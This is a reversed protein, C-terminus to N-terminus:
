RTLKTFIIIIYDPQLLKLPTWNSWQIKCLEILTYTQTGSNRFSKSGIMIFSLTHSINNKLLQLFNNPLYFVNGNTRQDFKCVFNQSQLKSLMQTSVIRPKKSSPGIFAVSRSQSTSTRMHPVMLLGRAASSLHGLWSSLLYPQVINDYIASCLM